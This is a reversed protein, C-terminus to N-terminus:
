ERISEVLFGIFPAYWFEESVVAIMGRVSYYLLGLLGIAGLLNVLVYGIIPLSGFILKMVMYIIIFCFYAVNLVVGQTIHFTVFDDEFDKIIFVAIFGVPFVYSIM